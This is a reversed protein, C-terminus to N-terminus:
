ITPRNVFLLTNGTPWRQRTKLSELLLQMGQQAAAGVSATAPVLQLASGFRSVALAIITEEARAPGTM